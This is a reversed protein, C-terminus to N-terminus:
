VHKEWLERLKDQQRETLLTEYLMDNDDDRKADLSEIFELEWSSLGSEVALLNNLMSTLKETTM